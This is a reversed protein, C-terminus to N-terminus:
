KRDDRSRRGRCEKGVRREESRVVMLMILMALYMPLMPRFMEAISSKAVSAGLFLVNGVPPTCLGICLNMVIMIGFHLPSMGLETVVPLFIPTFLFVAHPVDM